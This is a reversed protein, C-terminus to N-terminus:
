DKLPFKSCCCGKFFTVSTVHLYQKKKTAKLTYQVKTAHISFSILGLHKERERLMMDARRRKFIRLFFIGTFVKNNVCWVLKWCICDNLKEVIDHDTISGWICYRIFILYFIIANHGRIFGFEIVIFAWCFHM